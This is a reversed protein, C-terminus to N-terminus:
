KFAPEPPFLEDRKTKLEDWTDIEPSVRKLFIPSMSPDPHQLAKESERLARMTADIIFQESQDIVTGYFTDQDFLRLHYSFIERRTLYLRAKIFKGVTMHVTVGPYGDNDPDTFNASNKDQELPQSPDGKIGLLTPTAERYLHWTGDKLELDVKQVRSKIARTAEDSLRSEVNSQNLINEAHLFIDSEYLEGDEIFFDTFGYTIIYSRVPARGSVDEYSVVDYHAYHGTIQEMIETRSMKRFITNAPEPEQYLPPDPWSLTSTCSFLFFSVFLSVTIIKLQTMYIVIIHNKSIDM